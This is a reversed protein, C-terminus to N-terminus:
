KLKALLTQYQDSIIYNDYAVKDASYVEPANVRAYNDDMPAKGNFAHCHEIIVEPMYKISGLDQGLKLWFNDLYLHRQSDPVMGGLHKVIEASMAVATPLASGQFLDNGYVIDSGSYLEEVFLQDWNATRPRHDDGMFAFNDFEGLFERAVYNLPYAMGKTENHIMIVSEVPLKYSYEKRLEDSFDVVYVRKATTNTDVFANTPGKIQLSPSFYKFIRRFIKFNTLVAFNTYAM